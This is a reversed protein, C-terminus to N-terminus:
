RGGRAPPSPPATAAACRGRGGSGRGCGGRLLGQRWLRLAGLGGSATPASPGGSTTPPSRRRGGGRLGEGVGALLLEGADQVEVADPPDVLRAGEGQAPVVSARHLQERRVEVQLVQVDPQLQGRQLLVQHRLLVALEAEQALEVRLDVDLQQVLPVVVPYQGPVAEARQGPVLGRADLVDQERGVLDAVPHGLQAALYRLVVLPAGRHEHAHQPAAQTEQRVEHALDGQRHRHVEQGDGRGSRVVLANADGLLQVGADLPLVHDQHLVHHVRAHAQPVDDAVQLGLPGGADLTQASSSLFIRRM